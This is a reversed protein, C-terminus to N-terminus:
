QEVSGTTDIEGNPLYLATGNTSFVIHGDLDTRYVSVKADKLRNLAASTPHGYTNGTGVCIVGYEAGVARLFAATSSTRSGHHGVKLVDCKLDAKEQVLQNEVAEGIDGTFLFRFSGYELMVVISSNNTNSVGISYLVTLTIYEYTYVLGADPKIATLGEQGVAAIFNKYAATNKNTNKSIWVEEVVHDNLVKTLGGCHDADPHTNIMLEVDDVGKDKLYQSVTSGYNATGADILIDCDGIQILISDGQGVDIYHVFLTEGETPTQSPLKDGETAGCTKCTKPTETTAEQWTHGLANIYHTVYTDGCLLCIYTTYGREECTPATAIAQYDHSTEDPKNDDTQDGNANDKPVTTTVETGTDTPLKQIFDYVFDCSTLLLVVVLMLAFLKKM